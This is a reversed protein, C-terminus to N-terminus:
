PNPISNAADWNIQFPDDLHPSPAAQSISKYTGTKNIGNFCWPEVPDVLNNNSDM